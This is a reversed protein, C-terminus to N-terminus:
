PRHFLKSDPNVAQSPNVSIYVSSPNRGITNNLYPNTQSEEPPGTTLVEMSGICLLGVERLQLLSPFARESLLSCITQFGPCLLSSLMLRAPSPGAPIAAAFSLEM